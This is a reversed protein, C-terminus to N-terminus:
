DNFLTGLVPLLVNRIHDISPENDPVLYGGNTGDRRARYGAYKLFADAVKHGLFTGSSRHTYFVPPMPASNLKGIVPSNNRFSSSYSDMKNKMPVPHWHFHDRLEGNDLKGYRNWRKEPQVGM